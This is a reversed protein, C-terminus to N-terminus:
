RPSTVNSVKIGELETRLRERDATVLEIQARAASERAGASEAAADAMVAARRLEDEELDLIHLELALRQDSNLGMGARSGALILLPAPVGLLLADVRARASASSSSARSIAEAERAGLLLSESRLTSPISARESQIISLQSLLSLSDLSSM